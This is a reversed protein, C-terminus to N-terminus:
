QYITKMIQYYYAISRLGQCTPFKLNDIDYWLKCWYLCYHIMLSQMQVTASIMGCRHSEQVSYCQPKINKHMTAWYVSLLWHKSDKEFM